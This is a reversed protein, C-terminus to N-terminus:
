RPHKAFLRVNPFPHLIKPKPIWREAIKAFRKSPTRSPQSRRPLAVHWHSEAETRFAQLAGVSGSIARYNLFGQVVM